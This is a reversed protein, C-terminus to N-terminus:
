LIVDRLAKACPGEPYFGLRAIQKAAPIVVDPPVQADTIANSAVRWLHRALDDRGAIPADVIMRALRGLVVFVVDTQGKKPAWGALVQEDTPIDRRKRYETYAHAHARGISGAILAPILDEAGVLFAAAVARACLDVSRGSATITCDIDDREDPSSMASGRSAVYGAMAECEERHARDWSDGSLRSMLDALRSFKEPGAILYQAVDTWPLEVPVHVCRNAIAQSLPRGSSAQHVPNAIGVIAVEAGLKASGVERHTLLRLQAAHVPGSHSTIDDLIVVGRDMLGSTWEHPPTRVVKTEPDYVPVIGYTTEDHQPTLTVCPLGLAEAAAEIKRTKAMGPDGWLITPLGRTGLPGPTGLVIALLEETIRTKM